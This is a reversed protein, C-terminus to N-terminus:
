SQPQSMILTPESKWVGIYYFITFRVCWAICSAAGPGYLGEDPLAVKVSDSDIARVQKHTSSSVRFEVGQEIAM